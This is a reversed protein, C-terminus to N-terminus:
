ILFWYLSHNKYQEVIDHDGRALSLEILEENSLPEAFSNSLSHPLGGTIKKHRKSWPENFTM